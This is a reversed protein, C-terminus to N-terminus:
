LKPHFSHTSHITYKFQLFYFGRQGTTKVTYCVCVFFFDQFFFGKLPNNVYNELVLNPSRKKNNKM